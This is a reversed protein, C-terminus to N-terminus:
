EEDDDDKSGGIPDTVPLVLPGGDGLKRHHAWVGPWATLEKPGILGSAGRRRVRSQVFARETGDPMTYIAIFSPQTTWPLAEYRLVIREGASRRARVEAANIYPTYPPPADRDTM